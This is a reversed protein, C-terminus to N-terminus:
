HLHWHRASASELKTAPNLAAWNNAMNTGHHRDKEDKGERGNCVCLSRDAEAASLGEHLCHMHTREGNLNLDFERMRDLEYVNFPAGATGDDTLRLPELSRYEPDNANTVFAADHLSKQQETLQKYRIEGSDALTANLKAINAHQEALQNKLSAIQDPQPLESLQAELHAAQKQAKEIETKFTLPANPSALVNYAGFCELINCGYNSLWSEEEGTMGGSASLENQYFRWSIGAESLREPYTKWTLAEAFLEDNRMFVRSDTSQKDRVTGTWFTSRNPSTSTMVACYSQDCITFADALAYYFPLDERTYHGMTLPMREYAPEYSKKADIWNDSLGNNWADVQSNRSHPLSGMWTIRTDRLDLRWPAYSEGTSASTQAFVSNGNPLRLARPDNFGRVGQLTGFAHDFSRNEQMLIVIHEADAFTSGPEIAFARQISEPVFGAVGTAGSLLAAFKLFDRRSSSM